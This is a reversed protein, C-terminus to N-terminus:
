PLLTVADTLGWKAVLAKMTGDATMAKIAAAVADRLGALGVEKGVAIGLPQPDIAPGGAEAKGVYPPQAVHYPIVLSDGALADVDGAVLHKVSEEDSWTVPQVDIAPKGAAVLAASAARLSAESAFGADVAIRKGALDDLTRIGKPNGVPVLLATWPMLYDVFDAQDKRNGFTSSMSSIVLDCTGSGVDPLLSDWGTNDIRSAVGLRKAVEAAVDIDLGEPTTSGAAYSEMPPYDLSSCWVLTGAALVRDLGSLETATPSPPAATPSTAAVTPLISVTPAPTAVSSPAPSASGVPTSTTGASCGAILAILALGVLFRGAWRQPWM